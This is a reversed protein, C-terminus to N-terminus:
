ETGYAMAAIAQAGGVRFLEDVGTVHAAALVAPNIEGDPTPSCVTVEQVGAVRAPVVTMLLSSPYAARGGPVYVGVRRLPEVRQGLVSGDPLLDLFGRELQRRHFADINAAARKLAALLEPEVAAAAKEFDTAGLRLDAVTGARHRDLRATLELLVRDGGEAVQRVIDGVQDRLEPDDAAEDRMTQQIEGFPPAARITRM